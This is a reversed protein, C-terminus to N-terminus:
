PFSTFVTDHVRRFRVGRHWMRGVQPYPLFCACTVFHTCGLRSGKHFLRTRWKQARTCQHSAYSFSQALAYAALEPALNHNKKELQWKWATYNSFSTCTVGAQMVSVSVMHICDVVSEWVQSCVLFLLATLGHPHLGCRVRVCPLLGFLSFCYVWTSVTRLSSECMSCVLTSECKRAFWM